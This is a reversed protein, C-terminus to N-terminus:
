QKTDADKTNPKSFAFGGEIAVAETYESYDGLFDGNLRYAKFGKNVKKPFKEGTLNVTDGSSKFEVQYFSQSTNFKVRIMPEGEKM